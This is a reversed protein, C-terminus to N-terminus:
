WISRVPVLKVPGLQGWIALREVVRARHSACSPWWLQGGDLYVSAESICFDWACWSPTEDRELGDLALQEATV